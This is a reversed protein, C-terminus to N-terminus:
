SCMDSESSYSGFSNEPKKSRNLLVNWSTWTLICFTNLFEAADCPMSSATFMWSNSTDNVGNGNGSPVGILLGLVSLELDASSILRETM